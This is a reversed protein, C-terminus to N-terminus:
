ECQMCCNHSVLRIFYEGAKLTGPPVTFVSRSSIPLTDVLCEPSMAKLYMMHVHQKDHTNRAGDDDHGPRPRATKVHGLAISTDHHVHQLHDDACLRAHMHSVGEKKM